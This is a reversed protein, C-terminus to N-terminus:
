LLTLGLAQPRRWSGVSTGTETGRQALTLAQINTLVLAQLLTLDLAQPRRRTGVSTDIEADRKALGLVQLNTM